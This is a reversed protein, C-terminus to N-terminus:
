KEEDETLLCRYIEQYDHIEVLRQGDETADIKDNARMLRGVNIWKNSVLVFAIFCVFTLVGLIVTPVVYTNDIVAFNKMGIVATAIALAILPLCVCIFAIASKKMREKLIAKRHTRKEELSEALPKEEAELEAYRRRFVSQYEKKIIEVADVGLDYELSEISADAYEGVLVDPNAFNETKARWYGVSADTAEEDLNLAEEFVTEADQFKGEELLAYGEKCANEYKEKREKAEAEKKQRLKLAEEPSLGVLDEDDEDSDLVPFEFSVEDEVQEEEAQGDLQDDTADVYGDKTKKLRVGRGYEDDIIREEM